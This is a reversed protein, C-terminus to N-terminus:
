VEESVIFKRFDNSSFDFASKSASSHSSNEPFIYLALLSFLGFVFGLLFWNKTDRNKNHAVYSCASGLIMGYIAFWFWFM